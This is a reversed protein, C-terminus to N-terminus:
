YGTGQALTQAANGREDRVQTVGALEWIRDTVRQREVRFPSTGSLTVVGDDVGASLCYDIRTDAVFLDFIERGVVMNATRSESAPEIRPAPLDTFRATSRSPGSACGAALTLPLALWLLTKYLNFGAIESTRESRALNKSM